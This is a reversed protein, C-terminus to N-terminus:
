RVVLRQGPALRLTRARFLPADGSQRIELTRRRPTAKAPLRLVVQAPGTVTSRRYRDGREDPSLTVEDLEAIRVDPRVDLGALHSPAMVRRARAVLAEHAPRGDARTRCLLHASAVPIFIVRVPWPLAALLVGVGPMGTAIVVVIAVAIGYALGILPVGYPLPIRFRDIRHLRREIDFALRYSRLVVRDDSM